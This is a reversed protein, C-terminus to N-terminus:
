YDNLTLRWEHKVQNILDIDMIRYRVGDVAVLTDTNFVLDGRYRFNVEFVGAFGIQGTELVKRATKSRLRGRTTLVLVFNDESGGNDDLVPQNQFFDLISRMQGVAIDM